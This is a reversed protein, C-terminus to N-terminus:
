YLQVVQKIIFVCLLNSFGTPITLALLSLYKKSKYTYELASSITQMDTEISRSWNEM